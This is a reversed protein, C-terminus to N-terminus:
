HSEAHPLASLSLANVMAVRKTTISETVHGSTRWSDIEVMTDILCQEQYESLEVERSNGVQKM